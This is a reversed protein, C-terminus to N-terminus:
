VLFLSFFAAPVPPSENKLPLACGYAGDNQRGVPPFIWASGPSGGGAAGKLWISRVRFLM